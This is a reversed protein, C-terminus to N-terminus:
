ISCIALCNRYKHVSLIYTTPSAAYSLEFIIFIIASLLIPSDTHGLFKLFNLFISLGMLFVAFSKNFLNSM